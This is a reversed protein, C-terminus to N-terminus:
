EIKNNKNRLSNSSLSQVLENSVNRKQRTRYFNNSTRNMGTFNNMVRNININNKPPLRPLVHRGTGEPFFGMILDKNFNDMLKYKFGKKNEATRRNSSLIDRSFINNYSKLKELKKNKKINDDLNSDDHMLIEKFSYPNKDNLTFIEKMPKQIFKKTLFNESFTKRFNKKSRNSYEQFPIKTANFNMNYNKEEKINKNSERKTPSIHNNIYNGSLKAKELDQTDRLVRNFENLSYKHFTKFFNIEGQKVNNKEKIQVGPSPNMIRFNSGSLVIKENRGYRHSFTFPYSNFPDEQTPSINLNTSAKNDKDSEKNIPINQNFLFINNQKESMNFVIKKKAKKEMLATEEKLTELTKGALLEKQKTNVPSFDKLLSDPTIEKIMVIKGEVDTTYKGKITEKKNKEKQKLELIKLKEKKAQIVEITEKRIKQIEETEDNKREDQPIEVFPMPLIPTFKKKTLEIEENPLQIKRKQYISYKKRLTSNKKQIKEPNNVKHFFNTEKKLNNYLSSTRDIFYSKPETITGWYNYKTIELDYQVKYERVLDIENNEILSKNLFDKIEKNKVLMESQEMKNINALNFLVKNACYNRQDKAKKHIGQKYRKENEDTQFYKIGSLIYESNNFDDIEHNINYLQVINNTKQHFETFCFNNLKKETNKVFNTSITLSILLEIIGKSVEESHVNINGIKDHTTPIIGEENTSVEKKKKKLKKRQKM